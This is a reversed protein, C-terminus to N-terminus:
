YQSGEVTARRCARLAQATFSVSASCYFYHTQEGSVLFLMRLQCSFSERNLAPVAALSPNLSESIGVNGGSAFPIALLSEQPLTSFAIALFCGHNTPPEVSREGEVLVRIVKGSAPSIVQPWLAVVM